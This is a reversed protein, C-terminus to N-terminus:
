AQKEQKDYYSMAEEIDITLETYTGARQLWKLVRVRGVGMRGLMLFVLGAVIIDGSIVIADTLENFDAINSMIELPQPDRTTQRDIVVVDADYASLTSYDFDTRRQTLFIRPRM